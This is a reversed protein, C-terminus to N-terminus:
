LTWSHKKSKFPYLSSTTTRNKTSKSCSSIAKLNLKVYNSVYEHVVKKYCYKYIIAKRNLQVEKRKKVSSSWIHLNM